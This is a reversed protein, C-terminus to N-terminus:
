KVAIKSTQGDPTRLMYIGKRSQLSSLSSHVRRGNLDYIKGENGRLSDSHAGEVKGVGVTGDATAVVIEVKTGMEFEPDEATSPANISSNFRYLVTDPPEPGMSAHLDISTGKQVETDGEISQYCIQGEPFVNNYVPAVPNVTLGAETLLIVAEDNDKGLVNPVKILDVAPGQSVTLSVTSKEPTKEGGEPFQSIINGEPVTDSYEQKIDTLLNLDMM